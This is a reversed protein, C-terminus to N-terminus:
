RHRRSLLISTAYAGAIATGVVVKERRTMGRTEPQESAPGYVRRSYPSSAPVDEYRTERRTEPEMSRVPAPQWQPATSPQIWIPAAQTVSPVHQAPTVDKAVSAVSPRTEAAESPKVEQVHASSKGRKGNQARLVPAPNSSPKSDQNDQKKVVSMKDDKPSDADARVIKYSSGIYIGLGIVALVAATASVVTLDRKSIHKM